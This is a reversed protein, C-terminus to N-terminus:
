RKKNLLSGNWVSQPATIGRKCLTRFFTAGLLVSKRQSPSLKCSLALGIYFNGAMAVAVKLSNKPEFQARELQPCSPIKSPLNRAEALEQALPVWRDSELIESFEKLKM